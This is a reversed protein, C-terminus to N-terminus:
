ARPPPSDPSQARSARVTALATVGVSLRAAPIVVAVPPLVGTGGALALLAVDTSACANQLRCRAESNSAGESAAESGHHMPCTAGHDGGPCTCLPAAAAHPAALLGLPAAIGLIQLLAWIMAVRAIRRRVINM